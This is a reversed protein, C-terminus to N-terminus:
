SPALVHALASKVLERRRAISFHEVIRARGRLGLSDRDHEVASALVDAMAQPSAAAPLLIGADGVLAPVNGVANSVVPTGCAMAEAIAMGFAEYDTPQLYVVASQMLEIKRQVPIPGLLEVRDGVGLREIEADVTAAGDGRRGAIVGRLAPVLAIARVVDLIRKRQVNDATLHSVTFVFQEAGREGPRYLDTDVGLPATWVDRSRRPLLGLRTDESTALVLDALALSLRGAARAAPGKAVMGSATTDRESLATLLITPRHRLRAALIAPTGSTQWWVCALDFPARLDAPTRALVVEHGLARLIEIDGRYFEVVQFLDASPVAAYFLIQM